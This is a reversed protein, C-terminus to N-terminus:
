SEGKKGFLEFLADQGQMIRAIASTPFSGGAGLVRDIYDDIVLDKRYNVCTQRPGVKTVEYVAYGDAVQIRFVKGAILGKGLEDNKKVAAMWADDIKQMEAKMEDFGM